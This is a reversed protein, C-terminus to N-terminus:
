KDGQTSARRDGHIDLPFLTDIMRAEGYNRAIVLERGDSLAVNGPRHGHGCCSAVTHFGWANLATVLDALCRDVSVTRGDALTAVALTGHKCM